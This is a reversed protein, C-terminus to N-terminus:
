KDEAWIAKITQEQAFGNPVAKSPTNAWYWNKNSVPNALTRGGPM